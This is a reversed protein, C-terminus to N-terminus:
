GKRASGAPYYNRYFGALQGMLNLVLLRGEEHLAPGRSRPHEELAKKLVTMHLDLVDRPGCRLVGLEEALGSLKASVSSAVRYIQEDIAALLLAQYAATLEAFRGPHTERLSMGSYLRGTVRPIPGASLEEVSKVERERQAADLQQRLHNREVSYRIVRWLLPARRGGALPTSNGIDVKTLYDQAGMRLAEVGIDESSLDTVVVIPVHPVHRHVSHLTALGSSDPLNLDLVVLDYAAGSLKHLADALTGADSLKIAGGADSLIERVLVVWTPDDEVLLTSIDWDM